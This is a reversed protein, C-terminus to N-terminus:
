DVVGAPDPGRHFLDGVAVLRDGSGTALRELLRALEEACGHIDGVVWTAM